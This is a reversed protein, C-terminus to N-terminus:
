KDSDSELELYGEDRMNTFTIDSEVCTRQWQDILYKPTDTTAIVHSIETNKLLRELNIKAQRNLILIDPKASSMEVFNTDVVVLLLEDIRYYHKLHRREFEQVNKNRIYDSLLNESIVGNKSYFTARGSKQEAIVVSKRGSMITLASKSERSKPILIHLQGLLIFVGVIYIYKYSRYKVFLLITSILLYAVICSFLSFRINEFVLTEFKALYSIITNMSNVVINTVTALIDPIVAFCSVVVAATVILMVVGLLPIIILNSILFLFSFQHFYYVTLPATGVQAALSVAILDRFYNVLRFRSEYLASLKPQLLLISFLSLYSLQFGVDFFYPPHIALLIVASALLTHISNTKRNLFKGFLVFSVMFVSRVVSPGFGALVAFFWLVITLFVLKGIRWKVTNPLKNLFFYLVVVLIGIHLGSVSLVHVAGALRYDNATQSSIDQQQGLVLAMVMAVVENSLSSAQLNVEIRQRLQAAKSFISWSNENIVLYSANDLSLQAHIDKRALYNQYNFSGPHKPPAIKNLYGHVLVRSGMRVTTDSIPVYLLIKGLRTTGTEDFVEAYFRQKVANSHLRESILLQYSYTSGYSFQPTSRIQHLAACTFGVVFALLYVLLSRLYATQDIRAVLKLLISFALVAIVAFLLWLPIYLFFALGVGFFFTAATKSIPFRLQKM